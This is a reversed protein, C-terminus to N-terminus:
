SLGFEQVDEITEHVNESQTEWSINAETLQIDGIELYLYATPVGELKSNKLFHDTQSILV